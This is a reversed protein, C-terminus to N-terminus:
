AKKRRLAALGGLAGILLFGAAPIPVEATVFQIDLQYFGTIDGLRSYFSVTDDLGIFTSFIMNGNPDDGIGFLDSGFGFLGDPNSDGALANVTASANLTVAGGLDNYFDLIIVADSDAVGLTENFTFLTDASLNTAGDSDILDGYNAPTGDSVVTAASAALPMIVALSAAALYRTLKMVFGGYRVYFGM